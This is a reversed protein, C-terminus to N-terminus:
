PKSCSARVICARCPLLVLGGCDPCRAYVETQADQLHHSGDRIRALTDNGVQYKKAISYLSAGSAIEAEIVRLKEVTISRHIKAPKKRQIM